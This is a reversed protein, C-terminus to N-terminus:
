SGTILGSRLRERKTWTSSRSTSSSNMVSASAVCIPLSKTRGSRARVVGPRMLWRVYKM